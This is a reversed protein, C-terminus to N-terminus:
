DVITHSEARSIRRYRVHSNTIATSWQTHKKRMTCLLVARLDAFTGAATEFKARLAPSGPRRVRRMSAPRPNAQDRFPYVLVRQASCLGVGAHAVTVGLVATRVPQRFYASGMM